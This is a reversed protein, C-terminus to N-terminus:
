PIEKTTSPAGSLVIRCTQTKSGDLVGPIMADSFPIPSTKVTM